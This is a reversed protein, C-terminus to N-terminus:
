LLRFVIVLTLLGTLAIELLPTIGVGLVRPMTTTYEWRKMRLSVTESVFAFGLSLAAFYLLALAHRTIDVSQVVAVSVAYFLVIFGGDKLAMTVLLPANQAWSQRRCTEYLHCHAFEWMLNLVFGVLFIRVFLALNLLGDVIIRREKSHLVSRQLSSRRGWAVSQAM